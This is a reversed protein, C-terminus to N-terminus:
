NTEHRTKDQLLYKRKNFVVRYSNYKLDVSVIFILKNKKYVFCSALRFNYESAKGKTCLCVVLFHNLPKRVWGNVIHTVQINAAGHEAKVRSFLEQEATTSEVSASQDLSLGLQHVKYEM